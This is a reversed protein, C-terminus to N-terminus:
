FSNLVRRGCAAYVAGAAKVRKVLFIVKPLVLGCGAMAQKVFKQPMEPVVQWGSVFKYECRGHGKHEAVHYAERSALYCTSSTFLECYCCPACATM